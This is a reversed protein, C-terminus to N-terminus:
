STNMSGLDKFKLGIRLGGLYKIECGSGVCNKFLYPVKELHDFSHLDGILTHDDKM